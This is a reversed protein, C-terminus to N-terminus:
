KGEKGNEANDFVKTRPGERFRDFDDQTAKRITNQNHYKAFRDIVQEEERKMEKSRQYFLFEVYEVVKDQVEKLFALDARSMTVTKGNQHIQLFSLREDIPASDANKMRGYKKIGTDQDSTLEVIPAYVPFLEDFDMIGALGSVLELNLGEQEAFAMNAKGVKTIYDSSKGYKEDHTTPEYVNPSVGLVKCIRNIYKYPTGSRGSKWDTVYYPEVGVQKAFEYNTGKKGQRKQEEKWTALQSPFKSQFLMYKKTTM